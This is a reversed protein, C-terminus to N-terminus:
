SMNRKRFKGCKKCHYSCITRCPRTSTSYEDKEIELICDWEHLCFWKDAIKQILESIKM